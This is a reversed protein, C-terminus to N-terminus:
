PRRAARRISARRSTCAGAPPDTASRVLRAKFEHVGDVTLPVPTNYVALTRVTAAVYLAPLDAAGHEGLPRRRVQRM